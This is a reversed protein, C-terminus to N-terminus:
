LLREVLMKLIDRLDDKTKANEVSAIMYTRYAFRQIGATSFAGRLKDNCYTVYESLPEGSTPKRLTGKTILDQMYQQEQTAEIM